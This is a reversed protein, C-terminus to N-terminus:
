VLKRGRIALCVVTSLISVPISLVGIAISVLYIVASTQDGDSDYSANWVSWVHGFVYMLVLFLMAILVKRTLASRFAIAVAIFPTACLPSLIRWSTELIHPIAYDLWNQCDPCHVLFASRADGVILTVFILLNVILALCVHTLYPTIKMANSKSCGAARM